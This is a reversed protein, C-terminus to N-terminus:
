HSIHRQRPRQHLRYDRRAQMLGASLTSHPSMAVEVRAEAHMMGIFAPQAPQLEGLDARLVTARTDSSGALVLLRWAESRQFTTSQPDVVIMLAIRALFYLQLAITSLVLLTALRLLARWASSMM